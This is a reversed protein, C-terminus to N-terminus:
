NGKNINKEILGIAQYIRTITSDIGIMMVANFIPLSVTNGAIAVRLPQAIKGLGLQKEEAMNRLLLEIKDVTPNSMTSLAQKIETLIQAVNDKLLVKKVAKADYIIDDDSIFAFRSKIEMQAFTKAGANLKIIDALIDDSANKVPSDGLSLYYKFQSLLNAPSLLKMQETNFATLKARDFLSNSKALRKIDFCKVLEAVTMIEKDHGPNWGLLAVFNILAERLYGSRAFDILNIEPLPINMYEAIAEVATIDLTSKGDLFDQIDSLTVNGAKALKALDIGQKQRVAIAQKLAKPRERKSLKGGGSSITVSVHAYKPVQGFGLGQWLLQQGPTNMLHEQGRIVHTVKMLADDVVVAFNYTPFGDSKQIIFDGIEEAKFTVQGRVIDNIVIPKDQAIAFRVTVPLGSTKAQQMQQKTPYASPDQRYILSTKNKEALQRKKQLDEQTDFCYYAKGEALLQDIYKQYIALRESQQYPGNPGGVDPGQDYTLGLWKIDEIVQKTATPTNRKTDTDEIRLIFEGGFHKALLWNFLAVRAGGIHLYGTPSPAFRTVITEAM